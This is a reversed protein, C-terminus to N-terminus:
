YHYWRKQQLYHTNILYTVSGEFDEVRYEGLSTANIWYAKFSKAENSYLYEGANDKLWKLLEYDEAFTIEKLALAPEAIFYKYNNTGGEHNSKYHYDVSFAEGHRDTNVHVVGNILKFTDSWMQGDYEWVEVWQGETPRKDVQKM